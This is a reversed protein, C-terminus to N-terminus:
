RPGRGKTKMTSDLSVSGAFMAETLQPFQGIAKLSAVTDFRFMKSLEDCIREDSIQNVISDLVAASEMAWEVDRDIRFGKTVSFRLARVARLADESLRDFATGV